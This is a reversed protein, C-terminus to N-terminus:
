KVVKGMISLKAVLSKLIRLLDKDPDIYELGTRFIGEERLCYRVFCDVPFRDKEIVLEFHLVSNEPIEVKSVVAIGGLSVDATEFDFPPNIKKPTAGPSDSITNCSCPVCYRVRTFKRSDYQSNFTM